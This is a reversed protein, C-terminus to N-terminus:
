AASAATREHEMWERVFNPCAAVGFAHNEGDVLYLLAARDLEDLNALNLVPWLRCEEASSILQDLYPLHGQFLKGSVRINVIPRVFKPSNTRSQM